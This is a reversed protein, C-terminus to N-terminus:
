MVAAVSPITVSETFVGELAKRMEPPLCFTVKAKAAKAMGDGALKALKLKGTNSWMCAVQEGAPLSFPMDALHVPIRDM